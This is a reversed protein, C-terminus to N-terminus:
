EMEDKSTEQEHTIGRVDYKEHFDIRNMERQLYFPCRSPPTYQNGYIECDKDYTDWCSCYQSCRARKAKLDKILQELREIHTM